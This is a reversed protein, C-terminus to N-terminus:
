SVWSQSNKSSRELVLSTMSRYYENKRWSYPDEESGGEGVMAVEISPLFSCERLTTPTSFSTLSLIIKWTIAHLDFSCRYKTKLLTINFVGKVMEKGLYFNVM